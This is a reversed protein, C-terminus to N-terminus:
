ACHSRKGSASFFHVLLHFLRFIIKWYFWSFLSIKRVNENNLHSLTRKTTFYTFMMVTSRNVKKKISGNLNWNIQDLIGELLIQNVRRGLRIRQAAFWGIANSVCVCLCICDTLIFWNLNQIANEIIYLARNLQQIRLIKM